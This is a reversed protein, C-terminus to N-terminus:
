FPFQLDAERVTPAMQYGTKGNERVREARGDKILAQMLANLHHIADDDSDFVYFPWATYAAQLMQKFGVFRPCEGALLWHAERLTMKPLRVRNM